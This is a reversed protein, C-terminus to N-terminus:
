LSRSPLPLVVAVLWGGEPHPGAEFTGGLLTARETMGVLGFGGETRMKTGDGDDRVTLRVFKDEVSVRIQITRFQRAHRRANTLSEQAIRFLAAHIPKTLRDFDGMFDFILKEKGNSRLALDRIDLVHSAAFFPTDGSDRLAGVMQRLDGLALRAEKEISSLAEALGDSGRALAIGGAQAQITIAALHHAVTDHLERALQERERLKQNETRRARERSALRVAIAILVSLLLLLAGGLAETLDKISGDICGLGYVVILFPLGLLAERGAGWRFLSYPLLLAAGGVYLEAPPAGKIIGWIAILSAASLSTAFSAFPFIRRFGVSVALILGGAAAEVPRVVDHRLFVEALTLAALAIATVLDMLPVRNPREPRPEAWFSNLMSTM